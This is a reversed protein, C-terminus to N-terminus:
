IMIDILEQTCHDVIGPFAEPDTVCRNKNQEIYDALETFRPDDIHGNELGFRILMEEVEILRLPGYDPTEKLLGEACSTCFALIELFKENM